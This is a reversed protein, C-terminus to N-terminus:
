LWALLRWIWWGFVMLVLLYSAAVAPLLRRRRLAFCVGFGVPLFGLGLPIALRKLLQADKWFDNYWALRRFNVYLLGVRELVGPADVRALDPGVRVHTGFAGLLWFGGSGDPVFTTTALWPDDGIPQGLSEAPAELRYGLDQWRTVFWRDDVRQWLEEGKGSLRHTPVLTGDVVMLDSREHRTGAAPVPTELPAWIGNRRELVSDSWSVATGGGLSRDLFPEFRDHEDRSARVDVDQVVHWGTAETWEVIRATSSAPEEGGPRAVGFIRWGDRERTAVECRCRDMPCSLDPLPRTSWGSDSLPRRHIMAAAGSGSVAEVADGVVALGIMRHHGDDPHGLSSIGGEAHLRLVELDGSEEALVILDEGPGLAMLLASTSPGDRPWLLDARRAGLDFRVFGSPHTHPQHCAAWVREGHILRPSSCHPWAPPYLLGDATHYDAFRTPPANGAAAFVFRCVMLGWGALALLVLALRGFSM